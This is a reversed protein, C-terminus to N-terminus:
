LIKMERLTQEVIEGVFDLNINRYGKEIRLRLEAKVKNIIKKRIKEAERIALSSGIPNIKKRYEPAIQWSNRIEKEYKQAIEPIEVAKELIKHIIANALNSIFLEILKNRNM